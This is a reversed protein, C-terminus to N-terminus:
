GTIIFCGLCTKLEIKNNNTLYLFIYRGAFTIYVQEKILYFFVYGLYFIMYM